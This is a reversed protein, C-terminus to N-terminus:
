GDHCFAVASAEQRFFVAEARAMSLAFISVQAWPASPRARSLASSVADSFSLAYEEGVSIILPTSYLPARVGSPYLCDIQLLKSVTGASHLVTSDDADAATLPPHPYFKKQSHMMVQPYLLFPESIMCRIEIVLFSVRAVTSSRQFRETSSIITLRLVRILEEGTELRFTRLM